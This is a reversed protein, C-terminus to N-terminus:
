LEKQSILEQQERLVVIKRERQAENMKRIQPIDKLYDPIKPCRVKKACDYCTMPAEADDYHCAHFNAGCEACPIISIVVQPMKRVPNLVICGWVLQNYENTHDVYYGQFQAQDLLCAVQAKEYESVTPAKKGVRTKQMREAYKKLMEIEQQTFLKNPHIANRILPKAPLAAYEEQTM